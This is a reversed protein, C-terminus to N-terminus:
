KVLKLVVNWLDIVQKGPIETARLTLLGRGKNLQIEGLAFPRFDQNSSDNDRGALVDRLWDTVAQSWGRDSGCRHPSRTRVSPTDHQVAPM